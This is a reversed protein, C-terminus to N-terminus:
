AGKRSARVDEFTQGTGDLVAHKGTATAWRELIVDVYAPDLEVCAARRGLQEAAILTTGSGACTDLVVDGKKSSNRIARAVLAVPKQCPHHPNAAPKPIHWVNMEGDAGGWFRKVGERWGYLILESAPHYDGGGLVFTHKAWTIVTSLHGRSRFWVERLTHVRHWNICVYVGGRTSALINTVVKEIFPEWKAGLDDNAIPRRANGEMVQRASGRYGIDYPPDVFAMAAPAPAVRRVVDPDTADGCLVLHGELRWLDGARSVPEAPPNPTAVEVVDDEIELLDRLEDDDFGTVALDFDEGDLARLEEALLEEDWGADLALRNDAIVLARRQAESLHTLEIVPVTTMGLKRAALLRGHGAIIGAQGDVLIPNTFGFELISAAIKAVQEESHTRPNREYPRLRAVDWHVVERAM